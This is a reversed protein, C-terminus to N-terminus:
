LNRFKTENYYMFLNIWLMDNNLFFLKRKKAKMRKHNKGKPTKLRNKISAEVLPGSDADNQMERGEKECLIEM